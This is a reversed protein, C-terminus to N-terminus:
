SGTLAPVATGPLPRLDEPRAEKDVILTQPRDLPCWYALQQARRGRQAIV